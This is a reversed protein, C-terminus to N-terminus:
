YKTLIVKQLWNKKTLTVDRTYAVPVKINKGHTVDLDKRVVCNNKELDIYHQM